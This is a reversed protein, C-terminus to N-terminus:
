YILQKKETLWTESVILGHFPDNITHLLADFEIGNKVLSRANFNLLSFNFIQDRNTQASNFDNLTM